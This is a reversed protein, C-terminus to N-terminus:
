NNNSINYDYIDNDYDYFDDNTNNIKDMAEIMKKEIKRFVVNEIDERFWTFLIMIILYAIVCRKFNQDM